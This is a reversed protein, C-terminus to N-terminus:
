GRLSGPGLLFWLAGGKRIAVYRLRGSARGAEMEVGRLM